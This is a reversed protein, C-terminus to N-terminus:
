GDNLGGDTLKSPRSYYFAHDAAGSSERERHNDSRFLDLIQDACM